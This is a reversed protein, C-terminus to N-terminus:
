CLFYIQTLLTHHFSECSCNNQLTNMHLPFCSAEQQTGLAKQLTSQTPGCPPASPTTSHNQSLGPNVSGHPIHSAWHQHGASLEMKEVNGLSVCHPFPTHEDSGLRHARGSATAETERSTRRIEGTDGSATEMDTPDRPEGQSAPGTQVEAQLYQLWWGTSPTGSTSQLCLAYQQMFPRSWIPDADTGIVMEQLRQERRRFILFTAQSSFATCFLVTIFAPCPGLM